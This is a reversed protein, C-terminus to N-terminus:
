CAGFHSLLRNRDLGTHLPATGTTANLALDYAGNRGTLMVDARASRACGKPCGSVHLSGAVKAALRMAIQRTEVSAQGCAPMGPCADVRRLPAAPDTTLDAHRLIQSDGEVVLTRWPTVRVASTGQMDALQLLTAAKMRGFAVGYAVGMDLPGPLLMPLAPAPHDTGSAWQPLPAPHRAMRGSRAGGSEVFWRAIAILGDAATEREVRIGTAHGDARLILHGDRSREVRFDGPEEALLRGAGADIVFGVKGPLGPLDNLRGMIDTAIRHSDDDTRWCPTVLINRQGERVPCADVLDHALLDDLLVRWHQAAVGRIQVNARRTLDILGNGYTMAVKGLVAMAEPTLRAHRPKVRMLLGDGAMMPRWADPCWGRAMGANRNPDDPGM